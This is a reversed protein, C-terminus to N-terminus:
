AWVVKAKAANRTLAKGNVVMPVGGVLIPYGVDGHLAEPGGTVLATSGVRDVIPNQHPQAPAGGGGPGKEQGGGGIAVHAGEVVPHVPM